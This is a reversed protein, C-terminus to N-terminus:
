SIDIEASAKGEDVSVAVAQAADTTVGGDVAGDVVSNMAGIDEDDYTSIQVPAPIEDSLVEPATSEIPAIEEILKPPEGLLGVLTYQADAATLTPLPQDHEPAPEGYIEAEEAAVAMQFDADVTHRQEAAQQAHVPLLGGTTALKPRSIQFAADSRETKRATTDEKRERFLRAMIPNVAISNSSEVLEQIQEVLLKRATVSLGDKIGHKGAWAHYDFNTEDKIGEGYELYADLKTDDRMVPGLVSILEHRRTISSRAWVRAEAITLGFGQAYKIQGETWIGRTRSDDPMLVLSRHDWGASSPVLRFKWHGKDPPLQFNTSFLGTGLITQGTRAMADLDEVNIRAVMEKIVKEGITHGAEKQAHQNNSRSNNRKSSM